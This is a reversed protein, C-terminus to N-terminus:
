GAGIATHVFAELDEKMKALSPLHIYMMHGAEYYGMRINALLNPELGLHNFTYETALHPTALDYYGNAVYVKMYPNTSLALRLTDAVDVYRNEHEAYSWTQWLSAIVNYPLDSQFGLEGRVYDNFTAAYAGMIAAFSPDQEMHEGAADRDAGTFRMDLRGITKRQSRLLEKTFRNDWVRLNTSEIYERSLGTYRALNVAVKEREASDLNAGKMLALTYDHM